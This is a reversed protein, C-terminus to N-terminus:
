FHAEVFLAGDALHPVENFVCFDQDVGWRLGEVQRNCRGVRVERLFGQQNVLHDCEVRQEGQRAFGHVIM